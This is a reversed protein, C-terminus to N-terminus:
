LVSVSVSNPFLIFPFLATSVLAGKSQYKPVEDPPTYGPRIRIEKRFTGDPRRTSALVRVGEKLTKDAASSEGADLSARGNAGSAM